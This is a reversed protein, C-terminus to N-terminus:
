RGESEFDALSLMGAAGPHRQIAYEGAESEFDALSLMGAAGPPRQIAYECRGESNCTGRRPRSVTM